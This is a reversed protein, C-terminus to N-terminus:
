EDDSHLEDHFRRYLFHRESHTIYQSLSVVVDRPDRIILLQRFGLEDLISQAAPQHPLHATAFQGPRTSALAKRFDSWDVEPLANAHVPPNDSFDQFVHHRGSFRLDPFQRLLASLLHTGAKPISNALTRPGRGALVTRALLRYGGVAIPRLARNQRVWAAAWGRSRKAM